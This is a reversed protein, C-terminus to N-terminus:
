GRLYSSLNLKLLGTLTGYSAELQTELTSLQVSAAAIDVDRLNSISGSLTDLTANQTDVEKGVISSKSSLTASIDAVGSAGSQLLTYAQNLTPTDGPNSAILALARFTQEFAPNDATVGYGLQLSSSVRLTQVADDGQYYRTDPATAPPTTPAYTAASLNVPATSQVNGGFLYTGAYQTNLLGSLEDMWSTAESGIVSSASSTNAGDLSESVQSLITNLLTSINSTVNQMSNVQTQAATIVSVQSNLTTYQSELNLLTGSDSAIGSYTQAKLGSSTQEQTKAYDSQLSLAQNLLGTTSSFTAIRDTM